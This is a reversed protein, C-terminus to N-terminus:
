IFGKILTKEGVASNIAMNNNFGNFNAICCVDAIDPQDISVSQSGSSSHLLM